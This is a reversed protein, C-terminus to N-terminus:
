KEKKKNVNDILKIGYQRSVKWKFWWSKGSIFKVNAIRSPGKWLERPDTYYIDFGYNEPSLCTRDQLLYSHPDGIVYQLNDMLYIYDDPLLWTPKSLDEVLGLSYYVPVHTYLSKAGQEFRLSQYEKDFQVQIPVPLKSIVTGENFVTLENYLTRLDEMLTTM